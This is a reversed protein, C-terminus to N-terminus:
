GTKPINIDGRLTFENTHGGVYYHVNPLVRYVTQITEHAKSSRNITLFNIKYTTYHDETEKEVTKGKAMSKSAVKISVFSQNNNFSIDENM